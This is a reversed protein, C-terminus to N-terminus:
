KSKLWGETFDGIRWRISKWADLDFEKLLRGVEYLLRFHLIDHCKKCLVVQEEEIKGWGRMFVHHNHLKTTPCGTEMEETMGCKACKRM